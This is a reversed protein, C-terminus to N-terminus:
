TRGRTPDTWVPAVATPPAAVDPSTPSGLLKGVAARASQEYTKTAAYGREVAAPVEGLAAFGESVEPNPQGGAQPAIEYAVMAKRVLTNVGLFFDAAAQAEGVLDPDAHPRMGLRAILGRAHQYADEAKALSPGVEPKGGHRVTMQRMEASAAGLQDLAVEVQEILDLLDDGSRMRREHEFRRQDSQSNGRLGAVASAVIGVVGVVATGVATWDPGSNHLDVVLALQM